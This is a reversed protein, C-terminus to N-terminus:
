CAHGTDLVSRVEQDYECGDNPDLDSNGADWLMVGAFGPHSTFSGVLSTLESPSLFYKMDDGASTSAPLGVLLKAGASAHASVYTEWVDFNFGDGQGGDPRVFQYASCFDNNYFQIFLYDFQANDIADGMNVEPLPCQPAGSIYYTNSSDSPFFGRLKNVLYKYNSNQSTPNSEIDLDWGNVFVDGFPRPAANSTVNPNAYSNWLTWAVGEADAQSTVSGSDADGGGISIFVKKGTSQCTRIDAALSSCDGNGNGDITCDGFSGSPAKGGGYTSLFALVIIDIGQSSQCYNGLSQEADNQGWYVAQEYQGPFSVGLLSNMLFAGVVAGHHGFGGSGGPNNNETVLIVDNNNILNVNDKVNIGFWYLSSTNQVNIANTQCVGQDQCGGDGNNFFTWFGAGYLFM